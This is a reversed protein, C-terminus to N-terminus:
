HRRVFTAEWLVEADYFDCLIRKLSKIPIKGLKNVVFCLVNSLVLKGGEAM